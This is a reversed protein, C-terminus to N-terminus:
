GKPYMMNSGGEQVCSGARGLVAEALHCINDAAESAQKDSYSMRDLICIMSRWSAEPNHEIFYNIHAKRQQTENSFQSKIEDQKSEPVGM